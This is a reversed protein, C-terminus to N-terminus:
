LLRKEPAVDILWLYCAGSERYISTSILSNPHWFPYEEDRLVKAGADYYRRCENVHM